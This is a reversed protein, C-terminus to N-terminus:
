TEFRVELRLEDVLVDQPPTYGEDHEVRIGEVVTTVKECVHRKRLVIGVARWTLDL